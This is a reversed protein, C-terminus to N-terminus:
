HGMSQKLAQDIWVWEAWTDFRIYGVSYEGTYNKLWPWWFTTQPYIPRSVVYAQDLVHKMSEKFTAMAAKPDTLYQSQMKESAQDIVPDNINSGSGGAPSHGVMTVMHYFVSLPGRGGFFSTVEYNGSNYIPRGAGADVVNLSLDVGVKSWMDKIISMYDAESQIILATTKFGDPYGADALLQKAKDPNYTYLEKVSAPMEPDDLGLYIDKYAPVYEVPWTLIQGLGHNITDKITQLDTAMSLARRVRVDDFPKKQTNMYIYGPQGGMIGEHEMMGPASERTQAADDYNLNPMQDLKATRLSALRTSADPIILYKLGDIYPLQNGKGPGVPDTDWYSPNKVLTAQSGGVYDTLIFPGSGVANHWDSMDGYKEVVEHPVISVYAGFKAVATIMSTVPLNITVESPGTKQIDANRLEAYAKYMYARPDTTVQRFSFVVDDATLERGNVLRSAESDPNLAFHVGPRIQYVLRGQNNEADLTWKWSTALMGAKDSFIDYWDLWPSEGTGYGGADGKAWDGQWMTENTLRETPGPVFTFTLIDDFVTIDQNQVLRLSGGYQPEEASTPSTISPSTPTPSTTPSTSSAPTSTTSAPSCSALVALLIVVSFLLCVVKRKM